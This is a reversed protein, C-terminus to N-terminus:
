KGSATGRILLVPKKMIGEAKYASLLFPYPSESSVAPYSIEKEGKPYIALRFDKRGKLLVTYIPGAFDDKTKGEIFGECALRSTQDIMGNLEASNGPKGDPMLWSEGNPAPLAQGLAKKEDAKVEVPQLNKTFVIKEAVSSIEIASIENRDFQLVTKDRLGDVKQDFDGRFSNRAHFVRPDGALKVYTHSFTAAANGISFERLLLEQEYAKVTIENERDLGYPAYNGSESVLATLHLNAIADVIASVKAPDAAFGMPLILWQGDENELRLAAGARAIDIRSIGSGAISPLGPLQYNMRDPKRLALYLLLAVIVAGLIFYENKAKSTKM